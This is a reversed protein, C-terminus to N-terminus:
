GVSELRMQVGLSMRHAIATKALEAGGAKGGPEWTWCESEGRKRKSGKWGKTWGRTWGSTWGKCSEGKLRNGDCNFYLQSACDKPNVHNVIDPTSRRNNSVSIQPPNCFREWLRRRAWESKLSEERTREHRGKWVKNELVDHDSKLSIWKEWCMTILSIEKNRDAKRRTGLYVKKIMKYM